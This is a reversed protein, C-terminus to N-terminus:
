VKGRYYDKIMKEGKFVSRLSQAWAGAALQTRWGVFNNVHENKAYSELACDMVHGVEHYYADLAVKLCSKVNIWIEVGNCEHRCRWSGLPLPKAKGWRLPYSEQLFVTVTDGFSDIEFKISKSRKKKGM